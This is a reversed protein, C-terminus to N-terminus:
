NGKMLRPRTGSNPDEQDKGACVIQEQKGCRPCKLEFIYSAM